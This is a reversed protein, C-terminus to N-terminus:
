LLIEYQQRIRRDVDEPLYSKEPKALIETVMRRARAWTDQAGQKVWTDRTKRDTVGNGMFYETRMHAITHDETMFNGGPGVNAITDLALHDADVAIGKLVKCCMGIIEDDIIFQEYSVGLMSELMGAAHHVYNAGGM